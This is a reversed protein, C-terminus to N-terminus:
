VSGLVTMDTESPCHPQLLFPGYLNLVRALVGSHVAALPPRQALILKHRSSGLGPHGEGPSLCADRLSPSRFRPIRGGLCLGAKGREKLNSGCSLKMRYAEQNRPSLNM